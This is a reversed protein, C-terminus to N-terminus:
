CVGVEKEVFVLSAVPWSSWRGEKLGVIFLNVQTHTHSTSIYAHVDVRIHILMPAHTYMSAAMFLVTKLAGEM